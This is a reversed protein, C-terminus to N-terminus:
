RRPAYPARSEAAFAGAIVAVLVALQLSAAVATGLPVTLLAGGAAALRLAPRGLGVTRRFLVDGVLFVAAGGGLALADALKLAHGPAAIAHEEGAAIAIIGLLLLLHWYGFAELALRPRAEPRAEAIAREVRVDDDVGFYAWWLCASLALGLSAVLVLGVDVPLDRAGIGVAVVSEGIAVIVVLGHREVFHAPSVEFGDPLSFRSGLWALLFAAVWLVYQATGGAIGGALILLAILVNMRAIQAIARVISEATARSYLGAHILVVALYTAGFATGTGHFVRPVCLALLLFAAMAALLLGRRAANDAAVSNTLWAYGDYMWWILGLVLLAELAGGVTMHHALASTLQTIVFVFVLDFFLEM